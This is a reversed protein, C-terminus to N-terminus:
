SVNLNAGIEITDGTVTMGNGEGKIPEIVGNDSRINEKDHGNKTTKDSAGKGVDAGSVNGINNTTGGSASTVGM